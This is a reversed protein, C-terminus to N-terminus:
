EGLVEIASHRNELRGSFASPFATALRNAMPSRDSPKNM